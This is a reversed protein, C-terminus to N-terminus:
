VYNGEFLDEVLVVVTTEDTNFDARPNRCTNRYNGVERCKSCKRVQIGHRQSEIRRKRPRGQPRPNLPPLIRRNYGDDLAEGGVVLGTANDVTASDHTEMPHINNMYIMSQSGVKYYDSVYDYVWLKQKHIVAM